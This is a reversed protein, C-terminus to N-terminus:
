DCRTIAESAGENKCPKQEVKQTINLIFMLRRTSNRYLKFRIQSKCLDHCYDMKRGEEGIVLTKKAGKSVKSLYESM